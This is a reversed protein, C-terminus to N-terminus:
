EKRTFQGMTVLTVDDGIGLKRGLFKIFLKIKNIGKDKEVLNIIPNVFFSYFKEYSQYSNVVGDTVLMVSSISTDKFAKIHMVEFANEQCMSTTFNGYTDNIEEFPYFLKDDNNVYLSVGDGLQIFIIADNIHICALLTTGYLIIPDNKVREIEEKKLSSYDDNTVPLVSLDDQVLRNWNCLINLKINKLLNDDIKDYTLDKDIAKLAEVAALCAAKSGRDSRHHIYSGHGDACTIIRRYKDNYILNADQCITGNALHNYGIGSVGFIYKNM